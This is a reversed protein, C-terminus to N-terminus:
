KTVTIDNTYQSQSTTFDKDNTKGKNHHCCSSVCCVNGERERM